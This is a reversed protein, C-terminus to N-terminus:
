DLDSKNSNFDNSSANSNLNLENLIKSITYGQTDTKIQIYKELDFHQHILVKIFALRLYNFSKRANFILFNLQNIAEVNLVHTM